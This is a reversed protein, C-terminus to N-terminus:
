ALDTTQKASQIDPLPEKDITTEFSPSRHAPLSRPGRGGEDQGEDYRFGKWFSVGFKERGGNEKRNTLIYMKRSKGRM